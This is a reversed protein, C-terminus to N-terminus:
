LTSGGNVKNKEVLQEELDAIHSRLDNETNAKIELEKMEQLTGELHQVKGLLESIENEKHRSEQKVIEVQQSIEANRM